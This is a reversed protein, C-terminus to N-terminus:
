RRKAWLWYEINGGAGVYQSRVEGVIALEAPCKERVAALVEPILEEPLVGRVLSDKAAEYQPKVLSLAQGGPKLIGEIVPLALEQKTWGLDSAVFDMQEPPTWHLANTRECVVVREDNRLKWALLGYATDVAYVKAAGRQLLCDTFGGINCGL